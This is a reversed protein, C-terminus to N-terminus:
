NLKKRPKRAPTTNLKEGVVYFTFLLFLVVVIFGTFQPISLLDMFPYPWRATHSKVYSIWLFYALGTAACLSFGKKTSSPYNHETVFLEIATIAITSHLLHNVYTPVVLDLKKPYILERDIAYVTWFTSVVLLCFPFAVSALFRDRFKRLRTMRIGAVVNVLDILTSSFFLLTQCMLNLFTLFKYSGAFDAQSSIPFVYKKHAAYTSVFLASGLFHFGLVAAQKLSVM